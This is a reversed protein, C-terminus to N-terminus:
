TMQNKLKKQSLKFLSIGHFRQCSIQCCRNWYEELSEKLYKLQWFHMRANIVVKINQIEFIINYITKWIYLYNFACLNDLVIPPLLSIFWNYVVNCTDFIVLFVLNEWMLQCKELILYFLTLASFLSRM